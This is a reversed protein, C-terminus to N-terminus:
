QFILLLLKQKNQFLKMVVFILEVIIVAILAYEKDIIKSRVLPVSSGWWLYMCVTCNVDFRHIVTTWPYFFLM